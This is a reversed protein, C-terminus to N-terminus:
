CDSISRFFFNRNTATLFSTCFSISLLSLMNIDWWWFPTLITIYM